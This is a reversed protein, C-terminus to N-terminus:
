VPVAADPEDEDNPKLTYLATIEEMFTELTYDDFQSAHRSNILLTELGAYLAAAGMTLADELTTAIYVSGEKYPPSTVLIFGNRVPKITLNVAHKPPGQSSDSIPVAIM